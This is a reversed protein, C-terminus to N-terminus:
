LINIGSNGHEGEDSKNMWKRTCGTFLYFAKDSDRLSCYRDFDDTKDKKTAENLVCYFNLM